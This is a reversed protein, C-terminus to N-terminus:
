YSQFLCLGGKQRYVLGQRHGSLAWGRRDSHLYYRGWAQNPQEFFSTGKSQPALPPQAPLQHHSQQGRMECLRDECVADAPPCAQPFLRIGAQAPSLSQGPGPRSRKPATGDIEASAGSEEAGAFLPQPAGPWLLRQTLDEPGPMGAGCPNGSPAVDPHLPM